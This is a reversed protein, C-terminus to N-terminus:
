LTTCHNGSDLELVHEHGWFSVENGDATGGVGVGAPEPLWWVGQETFKGVPCMGYM